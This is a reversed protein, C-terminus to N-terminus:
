EDDVVLWVDDLQERGAQAEGAELHGRGDGTRLGDRDSTRSTISGSM